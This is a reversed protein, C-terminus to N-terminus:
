DIREQLYDRLTQYYHRFVYVKKESDAFKIECGALNKTLAYIQKTNLIVGKSCSQFDRPLREELEKLSAKVQHLQTSTHAWTRRASVEFFLIKELALYYETEGQYFILQRSKLQLSQVLENVEPTLQPAKIIIEPETLSPDLELKVKM